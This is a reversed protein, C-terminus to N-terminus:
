DEGQMGLLEARRLAMLVGLEQLDLTHAHAFLQQEEEALHERVVTSLAAIGEAFESPSPTGANLRKLLIEIQEHDTHADEVAMPAAALAPYFLEEEVQAHALLLVALRALVGSRDAASSSRGGALRACDDLLADIRRHDGRLLHLADQTSASAEPTDAM